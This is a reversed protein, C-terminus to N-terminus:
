RVTWEGDSKNKEFGRAKEIGKGRCAEGVM